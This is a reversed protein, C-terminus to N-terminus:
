DDDDENGVVRDLDSFSLEHLAVRRHPCPLAEVESWSPLARLIQNAEAVSLATGPPAAELCAVRAFFQDVLGREDRESRGAALFASLLQEPGIRRLFAPVTHLGVEEEFRLDLGLRLLLAARRQLQQRDAKNVQVVTPFLLSQGGLGGRRYHRQLKMYIGAEDAAHQDLTVIGRAGACVLYRDRAQGLLKLGGSPALPVARSPVAGLAESASRQAPLPPGMSSVSPLRANLEDRHARGAEPGHRGALETSPSPASRYTSHVVSSRAAAPPTSQGSHESPPLPARDHDEERQSPPTSQGSHGSPPPRAAERRASNEPARAPVPAGVKDLNRAVCSYLADCVARADAFRVETKQPHVNVDVLRPPLRLFAVGRPYRGKELAPGYAHALTASLARDKVPRGNVFFHLAGSGRTSRHSPSLYAEVTLPGRAGEVALLDEDGFVQAVRKRASDVREFKRSSRGDRQLFFGVEPRSLAADVVVEAVHGAETNSSRLFKRRAPVNFFLDKVSVTTGVPHGVPRVEPETTGQAQVALGSESSAHRSVIELRSVSAISPLAEGRFGFSCLEELDEVRTLKSTAHRLLCLRADQEHIGRGDDSVRILGIGGAEISVEVRTADADLANEILEKVVNAPRQVVEGAAIQSALDEPLVLIPTRLTRNM